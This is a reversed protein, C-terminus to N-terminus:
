WKRVNQRPQRSWCKGVNSRSFGHCLRSSGLFVWFFVRFFGVFYSCLLLFGVFVWVVAVSGGRFARGSPWSTYNGELPYFRL